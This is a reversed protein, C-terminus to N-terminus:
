TISLRVPFLTTTPIHVRKGTNTLTLGDIPTPETLIKTSTVHIPILWSIPISVTIDGTDSTHGVSDM